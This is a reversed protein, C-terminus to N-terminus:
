GYIASYNKYFEEYSMESEVKSDKLIYIRNCIKLPKMKHSIIIITKNQEKKLMDLNKLIIDENEYDLSNTFEDLILVEPNLYLLRALAVRQIQGSSLFTGKEGVLTNLKNPLKDLIENVGSYLIANEFKEENINDEKNLLIINNKITDDILYNDQSLLGIKKQWYSLSNKISSEDAYINGEKSILLGAILNILTTKGSGSKGVFAVCSGKEIKLNIKDLTLKQNKDYMFSLDKILIHNDFNIIQDERNDIIRSKDNNVENLKKLENQLLAITPLISRISVMYGSFRSFIPLLRIAALAYLSLISIPNKIESSVVILAALLVFIVILLEFLSAPVSQIVRLKRKSQEFLFVNSLYKDLAAKAKNTIIIEKIMSLSQIIWKFMNTKSIILDEGIKNIKKKWFMLYILSLLSLILLSVSASFFDVYILISFITITLILDKFFSIILFFNSTYSSTMEEVNRLIDSSNYQNIFEYPSILYNKFFLNKLSLNIEAILKSQFNIIFITYISKVFFLGILTFTSYYILQKQTFTLLINKLSDLPISLILDPNLIFGLFLPILAIGLSEFVLQFVILVIYVIIRIKFKEDILNFFKKM